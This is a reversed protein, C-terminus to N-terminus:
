KKFNKIYELFEDMDEVKVNYAEKLIEVLYAEMEDFPAKYGIIKKEIDKTKLVYKEFQEFAIEIHESHPIEDAFYHGNGSFGM